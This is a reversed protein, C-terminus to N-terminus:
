RATLKKPVATLELADQGGEPCCAWGITAPLFLSLQQVVAPQHLGEVIRQDVM